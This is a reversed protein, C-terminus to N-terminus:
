KGLTPASKTSESEVFVTTPVTVVDNKILATTYSLALPSNNTVLPPASPMTFTTDEDVVVDVEVVVDILEVTEDVGLVVDTDVVAVLAEDVERVAVEVGGLEVVDVVLEATGEM